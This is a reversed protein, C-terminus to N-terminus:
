YSHPLVSQITETLATPDLTAPLLERNSLQRARPAMAAPHVTEAPFVGPNKSETQPLHLNQAPCFGLRPGKSKAVITAVTDNDGISTCPMAELM